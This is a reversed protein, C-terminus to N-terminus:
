GSSSKGGHLSTRGTRCFTIVSWVATILWLVVNVIDIYAAHKMKEIDHDMEVREKIYMSGFVGALASFLIVMVIDWAFCIAVVRFQLLGAAIMFMLSSIAAISGVVVAYVQLTFILRVVEPPISKSDRVWKGDAYVDAQMARNLFTGYMGVVVLALVFQFLRIVFHWKTTARWISFKQSARAGLTDKRGATNRFFTFM